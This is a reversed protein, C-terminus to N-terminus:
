GECLALSMFDQRLTQLEIWGGIRSKTDTVIHIELYWAHRQSNPALRPPSSLRNCGSNLFESAVGCCCLYPCWSPGPCHFTSVQGLLLVVFCLLAANEQPLLLSCLTIDFKVGNDSCSIIKFIQNRPTGATACHILFQLLTSLQLPVPKIGPRTCYMLLIQHLTPQLWPESETGPRPVEM